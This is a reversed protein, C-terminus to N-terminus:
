LRTRHFIWSPIVRIILMIPKWFLPAYVIPQSKRDRRAVNVITKAIVEPTSWLPGGRNDIHATMQSAVFGPKILVAKAGSGALRHAIGQVLTGLGAKAAGYIYNSARGRDGAVSGIVVLSGHQQEELVNAAALCWQAASSFNVEFLNASAALEKEAAEQEGLVGYALLFVDVGDLISVLNHLGRAEGPSGLDMVRTEVEAGRVTLDSAVVDLKDSDRAVLVMRAGSKAWLRAAAMAIASTAGLVVISLRHQSTFDNM